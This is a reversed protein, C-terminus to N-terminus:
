IAQAMSQLIAGLAMREVASLNKHWIDFILVIRRKSSENKASHRLSDDFIIPEGVVWPRREGAVELYGCNEPIELPLHVILRGNVSGFHPQIYGGADLVSFMANPAYGALQMVGAGQLLKLTQSFPGAAEPNLVGNRHLHFVSWITSQNLSQWQEASNSDPRYNVYPALQENFRSFVKLEDIIVQTHKALEVIQPYDSVDPFAVEPLDAVHFLEPQCASSASVPRTGKSYAAISKQIRTLTSQDANSQERAKEALRSFVRGEALMARDVALELSRFDLDSLHKLGGGLKRLLKRIRLYIADSQEVGHLEHLLHGTAALAPLHGSNRETIAQLSTLADQIRGLRIQELAAQYEIQDPM